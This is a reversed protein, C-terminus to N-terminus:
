TEKLADKITTKESEDIKNALKEPDEITNRM